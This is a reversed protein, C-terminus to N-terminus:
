DKCFIWPFVIKSFTTSVIWICINNFFYWDMKLLLDEYWPFQLLEPSSVWIVKKLPFLFSGVFRDLFVFNGFVFSPITWSDSDITCWDLFVCSLLTLLWILEIQWLFVPTTLLVPVSNWISPTYIHNFSHGYFKKYDNILTNLLKKSCKLTIPKLSKSKQDLFPSLNTRFITCKASKIKDNLIGEILELNIM